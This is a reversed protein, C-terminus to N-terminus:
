TTPRLPLDASQGSPLTAVEDATRVTLPRPGLWRVRLREPSWDLGVSGDGVRLNDLAASGWSTPFAPRVTLVGAGANVSLGWLREFLVTLFPAVSFGLLFCSDFPEPRDGRYCENASGGEDGYREAITLLYRLGREADGIAFAADAAWATAITWVQGAHYAQPDYAPDKASLTRVGWPTTLDDAAARAVVSRALAAPLLGASVARLANPRVQPIPRGDRLSDYLYGEAPWAYERGLTAALRDATSRWREASGSRDDGVLGAAARLARWWHVQIDVAHARRDASDWITTDPADIGYRVRALAATAAEIEEAEGGNRLLGTSPDTRAEGWAIMARVSEIWASPVPAGAHASWGAMLLPFYLTTDSTGYLFIPGPAVQMPLEGAEGGLVPLASRAQFRLLSDISRAAWDYDGLWLVAWLMWALDRGWIAAYWPYGAVLGTLDDGPASYLRRLGERAAVYARELAPADPCRFTPTADTWRRDATVVRRAAADPDALVAAAAAARSDLARDLGGQLVIALEAPTSPDVRLTYQAGIEEVRGRYRGGIWSGRNVFLLEPLPRSRYELGFTRQQVRLTEDRTELRFLHPRIGEVLVPLLYPVFRSTVTLAAVGSSRTCRLSRVVGPVDDVPAVRQEIEFGGWRHRSVFLGDSLGASITTAPLSTESDGSRLDLRWPGTLRVCSAMVGGWDVPAGRTERVLELDGRGDLLAAASRSTLLPPHIAPPPAIM